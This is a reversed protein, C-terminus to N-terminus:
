RKARSAARCKKCTAKRPDSTTAIDGVAARHSAEKDRPNCLVMDNDTLLHVRRKQKETTKM